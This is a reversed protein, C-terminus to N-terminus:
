AAASPSRWTPTTAASARAAGQLGGLRDPHRPCAPLRVRHPRPRFRLDGPGAGLGAAHQRVTGPSRPCRDTECYRSGLLYVLTEDPLDEIAHQQASPAVVDPEGATTVVPEASLRIRGAPAVIRSCWNGFGDRYATIPVSPDTTLTIPCSSTPHARTTSTRAGVDDADAASLRLGVRLRGQDGGYAEQGPSQVCNRTARRDAVQRARRGISALCPFVKPEASGCRSSM